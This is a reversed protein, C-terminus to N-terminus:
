DSASWKTSRGTSCPLDEKEIKMSRRIPHDKQRQGRQCDCRGCASNRSNDSDSRGKVFFVVLFLSFAVVTAVLIMMTETM